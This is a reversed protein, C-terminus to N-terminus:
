RRGGDCYECCHMLKEDDETVTELRRRIIIHGCELKILLRGDGCKEWNVIARYTRPKRFAHSRLFPEPNM